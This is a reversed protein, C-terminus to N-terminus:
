NDSTANGGEKKRADSFHLSVVVDSSQAIDKGKHREGVLLNRFLGSDRKDVTSSQENDQEYSSELPM